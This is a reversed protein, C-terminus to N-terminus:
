HGTHDLDISKPAIYLLVFHGDIGIFKFTKANGHPLNKFGKFHVICICTTGINFFVMLGVKDTALTQGTAKFIQFIRHNGGLISCRNQYTIDSLFHAIPILYTIPRKCLIPM